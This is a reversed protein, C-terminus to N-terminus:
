GTRGTDETHMAPALRGARLHGDAAERAAQTAVEALLAHSQGFISLQREGGAMNDNAPAAVKMEFPLGGEAITRRVFVRVMDNPSMGIQQGIREFQEREKGDLRLRIEPQVAAVM